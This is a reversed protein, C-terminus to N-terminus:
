RGRRLLPTLARALQEHAQTEILGDHALSIRRIPWDLIQRASAAAAEADRVMDRVHLPVGM